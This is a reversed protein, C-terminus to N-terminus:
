EGSDLMGPEYRDGLEDILQAKAMHRKFEALKEGVIAKEQATAPRPPPHFVARQRLGRAAIPAYAADCAARIDSLSPRSFKSPIGKPGAVEIMVTEPYESFIAAVATLFGKQDEVEPSPLFRFMARAHGMAMQQRTSPSSTTLAGSPPTGIKEANSGPSYHLKEMRAETTIISQPSTQGAIKTSGHQRTAGRDTM